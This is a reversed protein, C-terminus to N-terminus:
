FESCYVYVQFQRVTPDRNRDLRPIYYGVSKSSPQKEMSTAAIHQYSEKIALILNCDEESLQTLSEKTPKILSILTEFHQQRFSEVQYLQMFLNDRSYDPMTMFDIARLRDITEKKNPLDSLRLEDLRLLRTLEILRLVDVDFRLMYSLFHAGDKFLLLEEKLLLREDRITEVNEKTCLPYILYKKLKAMESRSFYIKPDRSVAGILMVVKAQAILASYPTRKSKSKQPIGEFILKFFTRDEVNASIVHTAPEQLFFAMLSNVLLPDSM